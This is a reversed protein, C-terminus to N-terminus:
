PLNWRPQFYSDYLADIAADIHFQDWVCIEGIDAGLFSTAIGTNGVLDLDFTLVGGSDVAGGRATKNERFSLTAGTRRWTQLRVVTEATGFVSSVIDDGGAYFSIVNASLRFVRFQRNAASNGCIMGDSTINKTVATLTFDGTLGLNAAQLFDGSAAPWRVSPLSGFVNTQYTPRLGGTPQSADGGNGSSDLWEKGVGGVPDTNVLTTFSDSKWWRKLGALTFPSTSSFQYPNIYPASM